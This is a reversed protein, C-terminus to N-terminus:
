LTDHPFCIVKRAGEGFVHAKGPHFRDVSLHIVHMPRVVEIVVQLKINLLKFSIYGNRRVPFQKNVKSVSIVSCCCASLQVSVFAQLTAIATSLCEFAFNKNRNGLQCSFLENTCDFSVTSGGVFCSNPTM